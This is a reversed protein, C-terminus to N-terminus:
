YCLSSWPRYDGGGRSSEARSYSSTQTPGCQVMTDDLRTRPATHTHTNIKWSTLDEDFFTARRWVIHTYTHSSSQPGKTQRWTHLHRNVKEPLPHTLRTFQERTPSDVWEGGAGFLLHLFCLFLIHGFGSMMLNEAKVSQACKDRKMALFWFANSATSHQNHICFTFGKNKVKNKSM